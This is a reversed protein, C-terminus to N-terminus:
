AWETACSIPQAPVTREVYRIADELQSAARETPRVKAM